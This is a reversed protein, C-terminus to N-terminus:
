IAVTCIVRARYRLKSIGLHKVCMNCAPKPLHTVRPHSHSQCTNQVMLKTSVTSICSYVGISNYQMEQHNTSRADYYLRPQDGVQHVFNKNILMYYM